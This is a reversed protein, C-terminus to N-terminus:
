GAVVNKLIDELPTRPAKRDEEWRLNAEVDKNHFILASELEETM